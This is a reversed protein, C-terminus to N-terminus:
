ENKIENNRKKDEILANNNHILKMNIIKEKMM